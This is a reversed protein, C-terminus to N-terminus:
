DTDDGVEVQPIWGLITAPLPYSQKVYLKGDRSWLPDVSLKKMGSQIETPEGIPEDTREKFPRLRDYSAGAGAEIGRSDTFNFLIEPVRKRKGEVVTGQISIPLSKLKCEYGLGVVVRSAADITVRGGSVVKNEVVSGDALIALTEGELHYLGRLTTTTADLTWDGAALLMPRDTNYITEFPRNEVISVVVQTPDNYATVVAKGTGARLIKGVDGSSFVASGADAHVGTGSAASLQLTSAPTIPTIELGCDVCFADEVHIFKREVQREIFKTWRGNIYRKVVFYASDRRGEQVVAIHEYLGQTRYRTWAFIEQEKLVTFALAQGDERTAIAQKYPAPAYAWASIAAQESIMHNSLISVDKGSYFREQVVDNFSLMRVTDLRGELYLLDADVKLPPLIASGGFAKPDANANLPTVVGTDATLLWVGDQTFLLCGGQSPVLHRLPSYSEADVTHQYPDGDTVIESTNFNSLRGPRSGFVTLPYNETAGYLQRQQFIASCAPQNGTLPSVEFEVTAGSGAGGFVAVPATYGSGRNVILIGGLKGTTSGNTSEIIVKGVFGVGTPDTITFTSNNAYASGKNTVTIRDIAGNIFPNADQPPKISFDPIIGNDVFVTGYARGIYGIETARPITGSPNHIFRTRYVNYYYATGTAPANWAVHISNNDVTPNETGNLITIGDMFSENGFADVATVDYGVCWGDSNSDSLGTVAPSSIPVTFDEEALTWSTHGLRTLTYIPYDRHTLRIFDGRIQQVQLSELDASDYPTTVTYVRAMTGSVFLDLTSSNLAQGTPFYLQFTNATRNTVVFTQGELDIMGGISYLKVWEGNQYGHSNKTLVAVSAKSISTISQGVELVYAGDQVFRLALHSFILLYTDEIDPSFKFTSLKVAKDDDKIYDVFEQGPRTSIGGRYDVFWNEAEELALDYKELDSRGHFNPAIEGAVFAFKIVDQTM